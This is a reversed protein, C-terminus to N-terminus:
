EKKFMELWQDAMVLPKLLSQLPHRIIEKSGPLLSIMMPLAGFAMGVSQYFRGFGVNFLFNRVKENHLEVSIGTFATVIFIARIIMEFGVYLGELSFWSEKDGKTDWFISSLVLIILLQAWFIPKRLRRMSYRYYYGFLFVYLGIFGLGISFYVSNMLLLGVPISIVHLMLLPIYSKQGKQIEFFEKSKVSRNTLLFGNETEKLKISKRGIYYGSIAALIGTATYVLLLAGLIELPEAEEIGFQKLAFNIINVYIKILDFGYFILLNILKHFLASSVSFIGAIILGFLNNGFLMIMVELLIAELMIGTMPGIIFASPSVSKMIATILGARIILGKQPWLQYFGILLVTATSALLSGAFPIRANHLFSGVIIEISAWLGGVVAARMWLETMKEKRDVTMCVAEKLTM